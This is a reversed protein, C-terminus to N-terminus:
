ESRLSNVPNNSAARISQYGITFWAILVALAGAVLFVWWVIAIREAFNQLWHHVAVFALPCAVIFAVLVWKIFDKSLLLVLQNISAGMVKRIGIEKIRRETTLTALGFLGLCSVFVTLLTFIRILQRIQLETKYMKQLREDMFEYQFPWEPSINEWTKQLDALTAQVNGSSTKVMIMNASMNPDIYFILPRAEEHISAYQVDKVVGIVEFPSRDDIKEILQGIPQNLGLKKVATENLIVASNVDNGHAPSFNRGETIQAGIVDLFAYDVAIRGVLVAEEDTSDVSRFFNNNSVYGIPSNGAASVETVYGNQRIEQAFREYRSIRNDDWPNTIVLLHEEDFGLKIEMMLRLQSAVFFSCIILAIAIGFQSVVLVHRLRIKNLSWSGILQSIGPSKLSQVPQLRALYWAPYSGALLFVAAVLLLVALLLPGNDLLSLSLNRDLLRNFYPLALASLGLSLIMAIVTFLLTEQYFQAMLQHRAAGLTKKVGIERARHASNATTLNMFNFCAICLLLIAIISFGIVYAIDGKIAYDWITDSSHLHVDSLPELYASIGLEQIEALTNENLNTNNRLLSATIQQQAQAVDAEDPLLCYYYTSQVDWHNLTPPHLKEMNAIPALFDFSFHSNDPIDEIVGTVKLDVLHDYRLIQGLPDGEGFYRMAVSETIIVSYPEAFVREPQGMLFSFDFVHLIEPDAFWFGEEKQAQNEYSVIKQSSNTIRVVEELSSVDNKLFPLAAGQLIASSIGLKESRQLLRYIRDKKEHYRDYSLEHQVYLFILICCVMGAMLSSLNIFTYLKNRLMLRLAMSYYHNNM